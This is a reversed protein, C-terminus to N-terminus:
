VIVMLFGILDIVKVLWFNILYIVYLCPDVM